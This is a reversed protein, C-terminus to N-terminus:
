IPDPLHLPVGSKCISHGRPQRASWGCHCNYLKCVGSNTGGYGRYRGEGKILQICSCCLQCEM